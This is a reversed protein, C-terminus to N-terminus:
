NHCRPSFQFLNNYISMNQGFVERPKAFNMGLQGHCSRCLQSQFPFLCIQFIPRSSAKSYRNEHNWQFFHSLNKNRMRHQGFVERPNKFNTETQEFIPRSSSLTFHAFIPLCSPFHNKPPFFNRVGGGRTLRLIGPPTQFQVQATSKTPCNQAM